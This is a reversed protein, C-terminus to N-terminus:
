KSKQFMMEVCSTVFLSANLEFNSRHNTELKFFPFKISPSPNITQKPNVMELAGRIVGCLINCYSLNQYNDPLEVFEILPNEDLVLSFEQKKADYNTVQATIGLFM